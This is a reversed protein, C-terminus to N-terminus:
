RGEGRKHGQDHVIDEKAYVRGSRCYAIRCRITEQHRIIFNRSGLQSLTCGLSSFLLRLTLLIGPAAPTLSAQLKSVLMPAMILGEEDEMGMEGNPDQAYEQTAM